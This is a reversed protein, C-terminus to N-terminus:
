NASCRCWNCPTLPNRANRRASTPYCATALQRVTKSRARLLSRPSPLKGM